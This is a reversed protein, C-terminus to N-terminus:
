PAKIRNRGIVLIESCYLAPIEIAHVIGIRQLSPQFVKVITIGNDFVEVVPDIKDPEAADPSQIQDPKNRVEGTTVPLNVSISLEKQNVSLQRHTSNCPKMEICKDCKDWQM